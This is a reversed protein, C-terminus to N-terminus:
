GADDSGSGGTLRRVISFGDLLVPGATDATDHGTSTKVSIDGHDGSVNAPVHGFVV